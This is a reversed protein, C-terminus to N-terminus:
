ISGVPIFMTWRLVNGASTTATVSWAYTVGALFGTTNAPNAGIDQSVTTPGIIYPTDILLAAANADTGSEVTLTATASSITESTALDGAFNFSFSVPGEGPSRASFNGGYPM